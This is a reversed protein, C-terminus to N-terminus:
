LILSCGGSSGGTRDPAPSGETDEGTTETTGTDTGSDAGTGTGGTDTGTNGTGPDTAGAGPDTGGGASLLTGAAAHPDAVSYTGTDVEYGDTYDDDDVLLDTTEGTEILCIANCGDGETNNGDDCEEQVGLAGDGCTLSIYFIKGYIEFEGDTDDDASWVAIFQTADANYIVAPASADYSADRTLGMHSLRFDDGLDAGDSARIRQGFIENENNVPDTSGDAMWSVLFEDLDQHFSASPDSAGYTTAESNGADSIRFDVGDEAGAATLMQGFIEFEGDVLPATDDDGEWAVLYQNNNVDYAVTPHDASLDIDGDDGMDSIRFDAVLESGDSDLIQGYIEFEDDVLAGTDDDGAWVVLYEGATSNYAVDPYSADFAAAGDVGMDSIRFDAGVESGDVANLRQGFIESEDVVLPATNDDGEWVVLYQNDAGNYVVEPYWAGYLTSANPGMDSIRFDNTGVEVGSANIRQGFIEYEDDVLPDMNDDGWWVVLYENNTSNYAVAPNRAEYGTNADPGMDSIRFATGLVLGTEADIRQGWIEYEEDAANDGEWVILYERDTGNYAVAPYTAGLDTTNNGGM